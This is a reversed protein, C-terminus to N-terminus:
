ENAREERVDYTHQAYSASLISIGRPHIEPFINKKRHLFNNGGWFLRVFNKLDSREGCLDYRKLDSKLM